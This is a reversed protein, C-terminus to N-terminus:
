AYPLGRKANLSGDIPDVVAHVPGGGSLKLEGREESVVTLPVGLAELEGLVADEAARDIVLSMDGGEGRGAEVAREALTAYPALAARVREAARRCVALWDVGLPESSVPM